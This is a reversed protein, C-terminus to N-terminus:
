KIGYAMGRDLLIEPGEASILEIWFVAGWLYLPKAVNSQAVVVIGIIAFALAAILYLSRKVGPV